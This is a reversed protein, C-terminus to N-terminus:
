LVIGVVNTYLLLMSGSFSFCEVFVLFYEGSLIALLNLYVSLDILISVRTTVGHEM